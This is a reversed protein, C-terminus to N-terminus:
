SYTRHGISYLSQFCSSVGVSPGNQLDIEMADACLIFHRFGLWTSVIAVFRKILKSRAVGSVVKCYRPNTAM